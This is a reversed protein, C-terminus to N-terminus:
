ARMMLWLIIGIFVVFLFCVFALWFNERKGVDDTNWPYFIFFNLVGQILLDFFYWM